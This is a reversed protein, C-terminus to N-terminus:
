DPLGNPNDREQPLQDNINYIYNTQNDKLNKSKQPSLIEAHPPRFGGASQLGRSAKPNEGRTGAHYKWYCGNERSLSTVIEGRKRM